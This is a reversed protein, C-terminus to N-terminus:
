TRPRVTIVVPLLSFPAVGEVPDALQIGTSSGGDLNLAVEIDLDAEVLYRSLERLTMSGTSALIFLIRGQRDQAVATRRDALGVEDRYAVQGDAAVLIPFSQLATQLPESPDYPQWSLSRITPVGNNIALMGGFGVYSSGSAQGNVIVLGTARYDATYYGGNVVILAGTQQQWDMLRQPAGPRYRIDFHFHAPDIRLLYLRERVGGTDTLLHVHMRELGPRLLVWEGTQDGAVVTAGPASQGDPTHQRSIQTPALPPTPAPVISEVADANTPTQNTGQCAAGILALTLLVLNLLGLQWRPM